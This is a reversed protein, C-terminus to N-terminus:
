GFMQNIIILTHFGLTVSSNIFWTIKFSHFYCFFPLESSSEDLACSKLLFDPREEM